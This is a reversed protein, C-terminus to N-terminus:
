RPKAPGASTELAEAVIANVQSDMAKATDIPAAGRHVVRATAPDTSSLVVDPPLEGRALAALRSPSPGPPPPRKAPPTTATKPSTAATSTGSSSPWRERYVDLAGSAFGAAIRPVRGAALMAEKGDRQVLAHLTTEYFKLWAAEDASTAALAALRRRRELAQVVVVVLALAVILGLVVSPTMPGM